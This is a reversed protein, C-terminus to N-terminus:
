RTREFFPVRAASPSQHEELARSNQSSVHMVEHNEWEEVEVSSKREIQQRKRAYEESEEAAENIFRWSTFFPFCSTLALCGM